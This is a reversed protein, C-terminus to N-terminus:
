FIGLSVNSSSCATNKLEALLKSFDCNKGFRYKTVGPKLIFMAISLLNFCNFLVEKEHDFINKGKYICNRKNWFCFSQIKVYENSIEKCWTVLVHYLQYCMLQKALLFLTDNNTQIGPFASLNTVKSLLTFLIPLITNIHQKDM